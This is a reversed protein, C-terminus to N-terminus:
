FCDIVLGTEEHARRRGWAEFLRRELDLSVVRLYECLEGREQKDTHKARELGNPIRIDGKVRGSRVRRSVGCKYGYSDHTCIANKKGWTPGRGM